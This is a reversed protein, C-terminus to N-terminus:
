ECKKSRNIIGKETNMIRHMEGGGGSEGGM